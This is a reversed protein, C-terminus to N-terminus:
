EAAPPAAPNLGHRWQQFEEASFASGRHMAGIMQQLDPLEDQAQDATWITKGQVVDWLRERRSELVAPYHQLVDAQGEAVILGRALLWGQTWLAVKRSLDAAEQATMGDTAIDLRDCLVLFMDAHDLPLQTSPHVVFRACGRLAEFPQPLPKVPEGIGALRALGLNITGIADIIQLGPKPQKGHRLATIQSKHLFGADDPALLAHLEALQAHSLDNAVLLFRVIWGFKARGSAFRPHDHTFAAGEAAELHKTM